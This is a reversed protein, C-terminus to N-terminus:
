RWKQWINSVGIMICMRYVESKPLELTEAIDSLMQDLVKPITIKIRKMKRKGFKVSKHLVIKKTGSSGEQPPVSSGRPSGVKENKEKGMIPLVSAGGQPAVQAGRNSGKKRRYQEKTKEVLDSKWKLDEPTWEIDKRAM